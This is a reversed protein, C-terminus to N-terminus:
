AARLAGSATEAPKMGALHKEYAEALEFLKAMQEISQRYAEQEDAADAGLVHSLIQRAQRYYQERAM